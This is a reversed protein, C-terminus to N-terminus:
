GALLGNRGGVAELHVFEKHRALLTVAGSITGRAVFKKMCLSLEVRAPSAAGAQAILLNTHVNM